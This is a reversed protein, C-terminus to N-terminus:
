QIKLIVPFRRGFREFPPEAPLVQVVQQIFQLGERCFDPSRGSYTPTSRFRGVLVEGWRSWYRRVLTWFLRDLSRLPPRPRKRKLVALQQRLAIAEMATDTRSRLFVRIVAAISRIFEPV